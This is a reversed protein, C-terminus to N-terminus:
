GLETYHNANSLAVSFHDSRSDIHSVNDSSPNAMLSRQEQEERCEDVLRALTMEDIVAKGEANVNSM